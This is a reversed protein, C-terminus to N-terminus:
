EVGKYKYKNRYRAVTVASVRGGKEIDRVGPVEVGTGRLYQVYNALQRQYAYASDRAGNDEDYTKVMKTFPTFTNQVSRGSQDQPNVAGRVDRVAGLQNLLHELYKQPKEYDNQAIPAGTLMSKNMGLEIPAKFVPSLMNLTEQLPDDFRGLDGIPLGANIYFGQGKGGGVPLPLATKFWEPMNSSDVGYADEMNRTYKTVATGVAPRNLVQELQLPINKRAWTYFPMIRRIVTKEAETLDTYDFHFKRTHEGAIRFAEEKSLGKGLLDDLNAVFNVTRVKDEVLNGVTRGAKQASKLPTKLSMKEMEGVLHQQFSRADTRFMTSDAGYRTMADKIESATLKTGGITINDYGKSVKRAIANIAPDFTKFGVDLFNQYTSGVANRVHFDPRLGTVLPKWASHMRDILSGITQLGADIQRRSSTEVKALVGPDFAYAQVPAYKALLEIDKANHSGVRVFASGNDETAAKIFRELDKPLRKAQKKTAGQIGKTTAKDVGWIRFSSKPIVVDKGEMLAEYIKDRNAMKDGFAATIDSFFEKDAIVKNHKVMRSIMAKVPDTEFYKETGDLRGRVLTPDAPGIGDIYAGLKESLKETNVDRGLLKSAEDAHLFKGQRPNLGNERLFADRAEDSSSEFWKQLNAVEIDDAYHRGYASPRNLKYKETLGGMNLRKQFEDSEWNIEHPFYKEKVNNLTGAKLEREGAEGFTKELSKAVKRGEESLELLTGNGELYRVIKEKEGAVDGPLNNLAKNLQKGYAFIQKDAATKAGKTLRKLESFVARDEAGLGAIYKPDFTKGIADQVAGFGRGVVNDMNRLAQSAGAGLDQLKNNTLGAITKGGVSLGNGARMTNRKLLEEQIAGQAKGHIASDYGAYDNKFAKYADEANSMKVNKNAQMFDQFDVDTKFYDTKNVANFADDTSRGFKSLAGEYSEKMLKTAMDDLGERGLKEVAEKGLKKVILAEASERSLTNALMGRALKEAGERTLTKGAGTVFGKAASGAGLTVLNLPDLVVESLFGGVGQGLKSKVGLWKMLDQGTVQEEGTWGEKLGQFFGNEGTATDQVANWVANRPKDLTQLAKLLINTNGKQQPVDNGTANIRTEYNGIQKQVKELPGYENTKSAWSFPTVGYKKAVNFGKNM